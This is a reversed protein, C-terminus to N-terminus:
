SAAQGEEAPAKLSSIILIILIIWWYKQLFSSEAQVQKKDEEKEEPFIPGNSNVTNVFDVYSSFNKRKEESLQGNIVDIDYNISIIQDNKIASYYNIVFRDKFKNKELLCSNVASYFFKNNTKVRIFYLGSLQCEKKIEEIAKSTLPENIVAASSKYNKNNNKQLFNIVGRKKWTGEQNELRYEIEATFDEQVDIEKRSNTLFTLSFLIIISSILKM